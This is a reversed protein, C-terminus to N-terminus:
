FDIKANVEAVYAKDVNKNGPEIIQFDPNHSIM